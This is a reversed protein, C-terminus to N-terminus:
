QRKSHAGEQVMGECGVIKGAKEEVGGFGKNPDRHEGAAKMADVAQAKDQAGSAQWAQSGTVNGITEQHHTLPNTQPLLPFLISLHSLYRQPARSTNPTAPLSVPNSPTKIPPCQQTQPATSPRSDRRLIITTSSFLRNTAIPNYRM